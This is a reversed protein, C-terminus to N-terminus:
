HQPRIWLQVSTGASKGVWLNWFDRLRSRAGRTLGQCSSRGRHLAIQVAPSRCLLQRLYQVSFILLLNCLFSKKKKKWPDPSLSPLFKSEHFIPCLAFSASSFASMFIDYFGWLAIATAPSLHSIDGPSPDSPVCLPCSTDRHQVAACLAGAQQGPQPPGHDWLLLLACCGRQCYVAGTGTCQLGPLECPEPSCEWASCLFGKCMQQIGRLSLGSNNLPM